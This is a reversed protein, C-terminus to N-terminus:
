GKEPGGTQLRAAALIVLLGLVQLWTVPEGRGLWAALAAVAPAFYELFALSHVPIYKPAANWAWYACAAPGWALFAVMGWIRWEGPLALTGGQLKVAAAFGAAGFVASWATFVLSGLRKTWPRAFATYVAWSLGSLFIHFDGIGLRSLRVGDLTVAQLVLMTGALGLVVAFWKRWPLPGTVPRLLLMVLIPVYAELLSANLSSVTEQAKFLLGCMATAGVLGFAACAAFDGARRPCRKGPPAALASLPLLALSALAYRWFGLAMPSIRGDAMLETGVPFMVGWLVIALIGLAHGKIAASAAKMAPFHEM